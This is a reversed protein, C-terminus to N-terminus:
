LTKDNNNTLAFTLFCVFASWTFFGGCWAFLRHSKPSNDFNDKAEIKIAFNTGDFNGCSM